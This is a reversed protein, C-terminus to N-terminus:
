RQSSAEGGGAGHLLGFAHSMRYSVRSSILFGVGLALVLVAPFVFGHSRISLLLAGIGVVTLVVGGQMSRIIREKANVRQSWLDELLRQGGTSNLFTAFEGGSSFKDLLQRHFEMRAQLRIQSRRYMLWGILGIVGFFALPITFSALSILAGPWSFPGQAGFPSGNAINKAIAQKIAEEGPSSPGQLMAM